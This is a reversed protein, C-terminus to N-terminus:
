FGHVSRFVKLCQMCRYFEMSHSAEHNQLKNTDRFVNQCLDCIFNHAAADNENQKLYQFHGDPEGSFGSAESKKKKKSTEDQNNEEESTDM